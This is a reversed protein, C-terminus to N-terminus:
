PLCHPLLSKHLIPRWADMTITSRPLTGTVLNQTVQKLRVLPSKEQPYKPGYVHTPLGVNKPSFLGMNFGLLATMILSVDARTFIGEITYSGHTIYNQSHHTYACVLNLRSEQTYSTIHVMTRDQWEVSNGAREPSYLIGNQSPMWKEEPAIYVKKFKPFNTTAFHTFLIQQHASYM